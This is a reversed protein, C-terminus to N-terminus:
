AGTRGTRRKIGASRRIFGAAVLGTGLLLLTAPEPVTQPLVQINSLTAGINLWGYKKTYLGAGTGSTIGLSYTGATNATFHM